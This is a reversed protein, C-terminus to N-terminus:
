AAARLKRLKRELQTIERAINTRAQVELRDYFFQTGYIPNREAFKRLFALRGATFDADSFNGYEKRIGRTYWQYTRWDEGLIALDCDLAITIIKIERVSTGPITKRSRRVRQITHTRTDIIGDGICWDMAQTMQADDTVCRMLVVSLNENYPSGPVYVADHFWLIGEVTRREIRTLRHHECYADFWAFCHMLHHLTHYYRGPATYCARIIAWQKGGDGKGNIGKWFAYWRHELEVEIPTM